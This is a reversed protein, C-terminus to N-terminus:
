NIFLLRDEEKMPFRQTNNDHCLPILQNRIKKRIKKALDLKYKTDKSNFNRDAKVLRKKM